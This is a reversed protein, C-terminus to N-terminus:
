AWRFYRVASVWAAFTWVALVGIHLLQPWHGATADQLAQVGAGLPTFDGISRLNAPMVARPIWLGAFFMMPFFVTSGIGQVVKSGNISALLLGIGFMAAVCLAFALGFAAPNAPLKVGFALRGVLIVALAGALLVTFHVMAHSLLLDRSRAPTTALRRLIGRERYIALQVPMTSIAVMAVAMTLLIPVYLGIVSQGGIDASPERFAPISGLIVLIMPSLALGFIIAAIDRFYLRFEMRIMQINM